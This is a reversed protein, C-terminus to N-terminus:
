ALEKVRVLKKYLKGPFEKIMKKIVLSMLLSHLKSTSAPYLKSLDEISVEQNPFAELLRKEEDDLIIKDYQTLNKLNASTFLEEFSQLIDETSEVLIAQHQKILRHNGRFNPQDARGPLAFVKKKQALTLGVTIMAGSKEPAEILLTALSMGSVIRNRQPFQSKDPPISPFYETLLAGHQAVQSALGLNEKPYVHHFGSGIVALTRGKANLAGEHAATDIGRALGSVITYGHAALESSLQRAMELGYLTANRTGIVAISKHDKPLYHGKMYLIIPYDRLKLLSPPYNKNRYSLPTIGESLLQEWEQQFNEFKAKTWHSAISLGAQEAIVDQSASLLEQTNEFSQLLKQIKVSGLGPIRSLIFLDRDKHLDNPMM